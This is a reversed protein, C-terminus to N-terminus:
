RVPLPPFTRRGGLVAGVQDALVVAVLRRQLPCPQGRHPTVVFRGIGTEIARVPVDIEEAPLGSGDVDWVVGGWVVRGDQGIM